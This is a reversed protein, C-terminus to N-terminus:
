ASHKPVRVAEEDQVTVWPSGYGEKGLGWSYSVTRVPVEIGTDKIFAKPPAPMPERDFFNLFAAIYVVAGLLLIAIVPKNM